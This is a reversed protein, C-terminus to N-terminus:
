QKKKGQMGPMGAQGSVPTWRTCKWGPGPTLGAMGYMGGMGMGPMGYMGGMGMGPMGGMAMGTMGTTPKKGATPKQGPSYTWETCVKGKQGTTGQMGSQQAAAAPSVSLAGIVAAFCATTTIQKLM